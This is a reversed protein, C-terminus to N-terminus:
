RALSRWSSWFAQNFQKSGMLYAGRVGAAFVTEARLAWIPDGTQAAVWAFGHSLTGTLDPAPYRGGSGMPHTCDGEYYFFSGSVSDWARAWDYELMKTVAPLVRADPAVLRTYEILADALLADM